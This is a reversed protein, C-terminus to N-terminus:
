LLLRPLIGGVVALIGGNFSGSLERAASSSSTAASVGSTSTARSTGPFVTSEPGFSTTAPYSMSAEAEFSSEISEYVKQEHLVLSVVATPVSTLWTPLSNMDIGQYGSCLLSSTVSAPFANMAAAFESNANSYTPNQEFSEYASYLAQNMEDAIMAPLPSQLQCTLRTIM